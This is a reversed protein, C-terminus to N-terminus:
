QCYSLGFCFTLGSKNIKTNVVYKTPTTTVLCFCIIAMNDLIVSKYVTVFFNSMALSPFFYLSKFM